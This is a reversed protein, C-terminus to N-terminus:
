QDELASSQQIFREMEDDTLRFQNFLEEDDVSSTPPEVSGQNELEKYYNYEDSGTATHLETHEKYFSIQFSLKHEKNYADINIIDRDITDSETTLKRYEALLKRKHSAVTCCCIDPNLFYVNNRKYKIIVLFNHEKLTKIAGSIQTRKRNLVQQLTEIDVIVTNNKNVIKCMFLFVKCALPDIEVLQIVRDMANDYIQIFDKNKANWEADTLTNNRKDEAKIKQEIDSM